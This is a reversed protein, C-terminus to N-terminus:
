LVDKQHAPAVTRAKHWRVYLLLVEAVLLCASIGYALAMYFHHTQM